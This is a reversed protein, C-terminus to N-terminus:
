RKRNNYFNARVVKKRDKDEFTLNLEQFPYRSLSSLIVSNNTDSKTNTITDQKIILLYKGIVIDECWTANPNKWKTVKAFKIILTSDSKQWKWTGIFPDLLRESDKFYVNSDIHEATYKSLPLSHSKCAVLFLLFIAGLISIRTIYHKTDLTKGM